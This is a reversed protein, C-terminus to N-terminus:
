VGAGHAKQCLGRGASHGALDGAEHIVEHPPHLLSVGVLWLEELGDALHDTGQHHDELLVGLVVLGLDELPHDLGLPHDLEADGPHVVRALDLDVPAVAHLEGAGDAGVLAAQPEV